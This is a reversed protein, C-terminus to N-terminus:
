LTLPWSVHECFSNPFMPLIAFHHHYMSPISAVNLFATEQDPYGKARCVYIGKDQERIGTITLRGAIDNGNAPLPRGHERTWYVEVRLPSEDRCRFVVDNGIAVNQSTDYAHIKVRVEDPRSRAAIQNGSLSPTHSQDYPSLRESGRSGTRRCNLEDSGDACDIRNNCFYSSPICAGDSCRALGLGCGGSDRSGSGCSSAICAPVRVMCFPFHLSGTLFKTLFANPNRTTMAATAKTGQGRGWRFAHRIVCLFRSNTDGTEPSKTDPIRATARSSRDYM